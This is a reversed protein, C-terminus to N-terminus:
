PPWYPRRAGDRDRHCIDARCLGIDQLEREHMAALQRWARRDERWRRISALAAAAM